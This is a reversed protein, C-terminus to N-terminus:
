AVDGLGLWEGHAKLLRRRLLANAPQELGPDDEVWVAADQRATMLLPLDDPLRAVRFPAIGSQRLGFLDGPGRIQLDREAIVFGDTTDLMAQVRDRGDDTIPDAILVCLSRQDGRGVRGRLQHLQALGFRDANEIIMMTANPVDVGVEIVTTAVLVGIDGARFRQMIAEREDRPLRGHVAAVRCESLPGSALREHLTELDTLTSQGSDIVPVVIYAQEGATVRQAVYEYVERAGARDVHRTIIPQRGPPLDRITSIDLDGFVTLSLTRPIPTATMVLMHPSTTTDNAKTRMMARQHVGFRHQEDIVAVALNNFGVSETLLAHTGILMDVAGASVADLLATREAPKTSGTLLEIRVGSGGLMRSISGFHQEALLETPAMLAAQSRDAVAMLMAYLAVVTKGAGVDGQLLRNMPRSQQLDNAIEGIVDHQADTLEFPFRELIHKHIVTNHPLAPASLADHRHQRKLMVGIQLLLLEDLALRRRAREAEAESTPRHVAAYADGLAPLGHREVYEAPLHDEICAVAQTLITEVVSEIHSSKVSEGAPYIPRLRAETPATDSASAETNREDAAVANWRPNVLQLYDGYRKGVGTARVQMGPHLQRRIWPANFWVLQATASGDELTVEVRARRGHAVRVAAVEGEITVNAKEGHNVGVLEATAAISQREYQREYRMPLHLLLDAVCRIGLARFATARKAGVGHLEAIDTILSIDTTQTMLLDDYTM